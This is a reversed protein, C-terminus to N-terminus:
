KRKPLAESPNATSWCDHEKQHTALESIALREAIRAENMTESYVGVELGLETAVTIAAQAQRVRCVATIVVESLQYQKECRTKLM